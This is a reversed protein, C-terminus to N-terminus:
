RMTTNFVSGGLTSSGKGQLIKDRWTIDTGKGYAKADAASFRVQSTPVHSLRNAAASYFMQIEYDKPTALFKPSPDWPLGRKGTVAQFQKRHTMVGILGTGYSKGGIRARNLITGLVMAYEDVKHGAEAITTHMLMNWEDDNISKGYYEEAAARAQKSDAGDPAPSINGIEKDFGAKDVGYRNQYIEDTNTHTVRTSVDPNDALARNMASCFALDVVGTVPLKLDSQAKSIAGTTNKGLVGDIGTPGVDYNFVVLAKQLDAVDVGDRGAPPVIQFVTSSVPTTSGSRSGSVSDSSSGSGSVTSVGISAASVAGAIASVISGYSSPHINDSSPPISSLQYLEDQGVASSIAKSMEPNYPLVWIYKKASLLSRITQINNTLIGIDSENSGISVIALNANVVGSQSRINSILEKSTNGVLVQDPSMHLSQSVGVGISDGVVVVGPVASSSNVPTSFIERINM